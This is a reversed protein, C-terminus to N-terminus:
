AGMVARQSRGLAFSAVPFIAVTLVARFVANRPDFFTLDFLCHLAWLGLMAAGGLLTFGAWVFPFTRNVFLRRSRLVAARALLLLLAGVGVPGGTLLDQALGIAFLGSPPLLDPRYITWHYVAMLTFAPTLAAYGPVRLPLITVLAALVTTAIPLMRSLTGNVRPLSPISTVRLAM